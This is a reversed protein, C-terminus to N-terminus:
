GPAPYRGYFFGKGDHTWSISSFKVQMISLWMHSKIKNLCCTLVLFQKSNLCLFFTISLYLPSNCSSVWSLKDSTPQRDAITMVRITIWDSGSESLGYAFYKGDKSISYTSLAVTGDKSLTNPDLLVEAEADLNDQM